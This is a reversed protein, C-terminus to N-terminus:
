EKVRWYGGHCDNRGFPNNCSQDETSFCCRECCYVYDSKLYEFGFREKEIMGKLIDGHCKRPSCWCFLNLKNYKKYIDLIRCYEEYWDEEKKMEEKAYLEYSDIVKQRQNEGYMVFPNGLPTGRDIRVDWEEKPKLVRLNKVLIM